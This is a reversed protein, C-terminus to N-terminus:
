GVSGAERLQVQQADYPHRLLQGRRELYDAARQVWETDEPAASALCYWRGGAEHVSLCRVEIVSRAAEDALELAMAVTQVDMSNNCVAQTNSM